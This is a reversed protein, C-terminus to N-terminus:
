PKAKGKLDMLDAVLEAAYMRTLLGKPCRWKPVIKITGDACSLVRAERWM